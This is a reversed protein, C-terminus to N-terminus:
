HTSNKIKAEKFQLMTRCAHITGQYEDPFNNRQISKNERHGKFIYTDQEWKNIHKHTLVSFVLVLGWQVSNSSQEKLFSDKNKAESLGRLRYATFLEPSVESSWSPSELYPSFSEGRRVKFSSLLHGGKKKSSTWYAFEQLACFAQLPINYHWTLLFDTNPLSVDWSHISTLRSYEPAFHLEPLNHKNSLCHHEKLANIRQCFEM